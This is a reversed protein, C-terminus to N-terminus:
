LDSVSTLQTLTSVTVTKYHGLRQLSLGLSGSYVSHTMVRYSEPSPLVSETDFPM